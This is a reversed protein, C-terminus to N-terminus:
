GNAEVARRWVALAEEPVGDEHGDQWSYAVGNLNVTHTEHKDTERLEGPMAAITSERLATNEGLVEGKLEQEPKPAAQPLSAKKPM